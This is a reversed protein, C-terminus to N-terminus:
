LAGGEEKHLSDYMRGSRKRILDAANTYFQMFQKETGPKGGAAEPDSFHGDWLENPLDFYGNENQKVFDHFMNKEVFSQWGPLANGAVDKDDEIFTLLYYTMFLVLKRDYKLMYSLSINNYPEGGNQELYFNYISLLYLDFYDHTNGLGRACNISLGERFPLIMFNGPTHYLDMLELAEDTWPFGDMKRDNHLERHGLYYAWNTTAVSNMTDGRYSLGGICDPEGLEYKLGYRNYRDMPDNEIRVVKKDSRNIIDGFVRDYIVNAEISADADYDIDNNRFTSYREYSGAGPDILYEGNRPDICDSVVDYNIFEKKTLSMVRKYTDEIKKNDSNM